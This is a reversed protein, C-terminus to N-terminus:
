PRSKRGGTSTMSSRRMGVEKSALNIIALAIFRSTLWVIAPRYLVLRRLYSNVAEWGFRLARKRPRM